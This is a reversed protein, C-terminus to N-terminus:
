VSFPIRQVGEVAVTEEVEIGGNNSVYGVVQGSGTRDFISFFYQRGVQIDVVRCNDDDINVAPGQAVISGYAGHDQRISWAVKTLDANGYTVCVRVPDNPIRPVFDDDYFNDDYYDCNDGVCFGKLKREGRFSFTANVQAKSQIDLVAMTTWGILLLTLLYTAKNM